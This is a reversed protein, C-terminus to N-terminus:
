SVEPLQLDLRVPLHDSWGPSLHGDDGVLKTVGTSTEMQSLVNPLFSSTKAVFDESLVIQDILHCVVDDHRGKYTAAAWGTRVALQWMPNFLPRRTGRAFALKYEERHHELWDAERSALFGRRSMLEGSWPNANFDGMVILPDNQWFEDLAAGASLGWEVRDSETPHNLRDPGHVGAVALRRGDLM